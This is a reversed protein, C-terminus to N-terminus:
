NREVSAFLKEVQANVLVDQTRDGVVLADPGTKGDLLKDYVQWRKDSQGTVLSVMQKM